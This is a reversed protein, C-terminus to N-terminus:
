IEKLPTSMHKYHTFLEKAWNLAKEDLSILERDDWVGEETIFGILMLDDTIFIAPSEVEEDLIRIELNPSNILKTLDERFEVKIREFVEQIAILTTKTGNKTVNLTERIVNPHFYPLLMFYHKTKLLHPYFPPPIEFVNTIDYEYLFNNKLDGIREYMKPPLSDLKQKEWYDRDKDLLINIDIIELMKDILLEGINSLQFMGNNEIIIKEKELQKIQPVILRSSVNFTSKIEDIDKPGDKLLQMLKRRKESLWIINILDKEMHM